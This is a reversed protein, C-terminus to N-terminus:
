QETIEEITPSYRIFLDKFATRLKQSNRSDAHLYAEGIAGAFHGGQEIMKNSAFLFPDNCDFWYQLSDFGRDDVSLGTLDCLFITTESTLHYQFLNEVTKFECFLETM